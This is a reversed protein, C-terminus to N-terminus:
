YIDSPYFEETSEKKIREYVRQPIKNEKGNTKMLEIYKEYAEKAQEQEGLGWYADGLNIYAVTRNPYTIIIKELIHIAESRLGYQELYYALDNYVIVNSSTINISWKVCAIEVVVSGSSCGYCEESIIEMCGKIKDILINTSSVKNSIILNDKGLKRIESLYQEYFTIAREKDKKWYLNGLEIFLLSDKVDWNLLNNLISIAEEEKDASVLYKSLKLFSNYNQSSQAVFDLFLLGEYDSYTAISKIKGSNYDTEYDLVKAEFMRQYFLREKDIVDSEIDLKNDFLSTSIDGVHVRKEESGAIGNIESREIHGLLFWNKFNANYRYISKFTTSVGFHGSGMFSEGFIIDDQNFSIYRDEGLDVSGSYVKYIDNFLEDKYIEIRMKSEDLLYYSIGALHISDDIVLGYLTDIKVEPKILQLDQCSVKRIPIIIVLVFLFFKM